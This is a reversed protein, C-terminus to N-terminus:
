APNAVTINVLWGNPGPVVEVTVPLPDRAPVPTESYWPVFPLDQETTGAVAANDVFSFYGDDTLDPLYVGARISAPPSDDGILKTDLAPVDRTYPAGPAAPGLWQSAWEASEGMQQDFVSVQQPAPVLVAVSNTFSKTGCGSLLGLACMIVFLGRLVGGM